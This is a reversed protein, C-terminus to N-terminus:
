HGHVLLRRSATTFHESRINGQEFARHLFEEITFCHNALSRAAEIDPKAVLRPYEDRFSLIASPEIGVLPTDDSVINKFIDVNRQAYHQARPLLGKSLAARGSEPHEVLQVDYGLHTLLEITKIGIHPDNYNTFEDCFLYLKGLKAVTKPRSFQRKYWKRLSTSQLRPLTRAPAIQLWKKLWSSTSRHTLLFNTLSPFLAGVQNLDNIYAFLRTRLPIGHVRQYQYLFEAKMSAMDVNSPCESTCGKCSICLDMVEKIESHDFRKPDDSTRTHSASASPVFPKDQANGRTLFERLVNARGRTTDRENRTAQYSPCMLGGSQPLKRCDGSGNCKEAMRLLGGASSFDLVTQPEVTPQNPTYRLSTNMPAADVIKGPNFIHYPDWVAKIRQFLAYNEKGVMLPIFAARVRGDGHEGSLSGNYKKVLKASAESIRYFNAVDEAQKLNLIPRLHIEGAGAHAYYVAQQGFDEMTRAFEDIYDPLDEIAVATDEICAVAKQDGPINALLGLGASRLAWVGKIHPPEVIPFAYGLGQAILDKVFAEA